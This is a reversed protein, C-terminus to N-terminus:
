GRRTGGTTNKNIFGYKEKESKSQSYFGSIQDWKPPGGNEFGLENQALEKQMLKCIFNVEM